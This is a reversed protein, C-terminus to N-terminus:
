AQCPRGSVLTSAAARAPARALFDSMSQLSTTWIETQPPPVRGGPLLYTTIGVRSVLPQLAARGVGGWAAQLLWSLKGHITSAMAASEAGLDSPCRSECASRQRQVSIQRADRNVHLASVQVSLQRAGRSM